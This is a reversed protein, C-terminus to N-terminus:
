IRRYALIQFAKKILIKHTMWLHPWNPKALAWIDACCSMCGEKEVPCPSFVPNSHQQTLIFVLLNICNVTVPSVYNSTFFYNLNNGVQTTLFVYFFKLDVGKGWEERSRRKVSVEGGQAACHTEPNPTHTVTLEYCNGEAEGEEDAQEEAKTNDKWWVNSRWSYGVEGAHIRGLSCYIPIRATFNKMRKITQWVRQIRKREKKRFYTQESIAGHAEQPLLCISHATDPVTWVQGRGVSAM